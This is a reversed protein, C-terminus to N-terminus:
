PYICEIVTNLHCRYSGLIHRVTRQSPRLEDRKGPTLSNRPTMYELLKRDVKRASPSHKKQKMGLLPLQLRVEGRSEVHADGALSSEM